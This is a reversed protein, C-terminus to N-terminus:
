GVVVETELEADVKLSNTIFCAGKAKKLLNEARAVDAEADVVLRAKVKFGVFQVGDSAKDLEGVVECSLDKWAYKSMGAIARFSLAYCDAVAAVLLDEPSWKDGPGGFEKPANSEMPELGEIDINVSGSDTTKATATYFHHFDM